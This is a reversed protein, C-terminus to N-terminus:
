MLKTMFARLKSEPYLAFSFERNTLIRNAKRRCRVLDLEALVDRRQSATFAALNRTVAQLRHFRDRNRSSSARRERRSRGHVAHAADEEAIL